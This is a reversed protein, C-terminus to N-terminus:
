IIFHLENQIGNGNRVGVIRGDIYLIGVLSKNCRSTRFAAQGDGTGERRIAICICVSDDEGSIIQDQVSSARQLNGGCIVADGTLVIQLDGAARDENVTFAISEFCVIGDGDCVASDGDGCVLIAEVRFIIIIIGLAVDVDASPSEVDVCGAVANLAGCDHLNVVAVERNGCFFADFSGIDLDVAAGKVQSGTIISDVRGIFGVGVCCGDLNVATVDINVHSLAIGIGDIGIAVQIDVAACQVDRRLVCEIEFVSSFM